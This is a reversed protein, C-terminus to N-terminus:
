KNNKFKNDKMDTKTIAKKKVNALHINVSALSVDYMQAIDKRTVGQKALKSWERVMQKTIRKRTKRHVKEVNACVSCPEDSSVPANENVVDAKLPKNGFWKKLLIAGVGVGLLATTVKTTKNM